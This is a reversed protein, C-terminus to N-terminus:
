RSARGGRPENRGDNDLWWRHSPLLPCHPLSWCLKSEDGLTSLCTGYWGGVSVPCVSNLPIQRTRLAGLQVEVVLQHSEVMGAM